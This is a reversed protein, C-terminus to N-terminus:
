GNEKKTYHKKCKYNTESSCPDLTFEFEENLKNFFSLPTGWECTNSSM